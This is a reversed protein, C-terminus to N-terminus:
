RTSSNSFQFCCTLRFSFRVSPISRSVRCLEKFELGKGVGEGLLRLVELDLNLGVLALVATQCTKEVLLLVVVGPERDAKRASLLLTVIGELRKNELLLNGLLELPLALPVPLLEARQLV